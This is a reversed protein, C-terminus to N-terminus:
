VKRGLLASQWGWWAANFMNVGYSGDDRMWFMSERTPPAGNNDIGKHGAAFNAIVWALAATEFEARMTAEDPTAAAVVKEVFSQRLMALHLQHQRKEIVGANLRQLSRMQSQKFSHAAELIAETDIM